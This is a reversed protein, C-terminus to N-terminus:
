FETVCNRITWNMQLGCCVSASIKPTVRIASAHRPSSRSANEFDKAKEVVRNRDDDSLFDNAKMSLARKMSERTADAEARLKVMWGILVGIAAIALGVHGGFGTFTMLLGNLGAKLGNALVGAQGMVGMGRFSAWYGSTAGTAATITTRMGVMINQWMQLNRVVSLIYGGAVVTAIAKGWAIIAAQNQMVWSIGNGMATALEGLAVGLQKATNITDRDKLATSLSRLADKAADFLGADGIEKAFLMWETKLKATM